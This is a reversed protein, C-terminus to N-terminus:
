RLYLDYRVSKGEFCQNPKPEEVIARAIRPRKVVIREVESEWAAAFLTSDERADGGGGCLATLVQAERKALASGREPFMPDLFIVEPRAGPSRREALARLSPKADGSSVGWREEVVESFPSGSSRAREIGDELLALVIRDREFGRIQAGLLALRMADRGFGLTADWIHPRTGKALGVARGLLGRKGEQLRRTFEPRTFDVLFPRPPPGGTLSRLLRARLEGTASRELVLGEQPELEPLPPLQFQRALEPSAFRPIESNM